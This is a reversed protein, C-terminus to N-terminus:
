EWSSIKIYKSKKLLDYDSDRALLLDCGTLNATAAIISDILPLKYSHSIRAAEQAIARDVMILEVKDSTEVGEFFTNIIDKSVGQQMLKKISEAFALIPIIIRAKGARTEEILAIAKPNQSFAQLIFWTDACYKM